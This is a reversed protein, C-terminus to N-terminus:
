RKIIIFDSRRNINHQEETCKVGDKCENLLRSEGYGIASEIRETAIGKSYLYAQTAKARKDSLEMNYADRGRSDTHSEIKIVMEPFIAMVELAKALVVEAEPTIDWKNFEFYIPDLKIKEMGTREDKVILDELKDLEVDLTIYEGDVTGIEQPITKSIYKDKSFTVEVKQDCPIKVEYKGEEDTKVEAIVNFLSDKVTVTADVLFEKSAKDRLVGTIFQDCPLPKRYFAYIDDDGKGNLRNSSFYGNKNDKHFVMAFDDFSTNVVKGLNVAKTFGQEPIFESQYIDLGGFGQHGNSSFYLINESSFFPFVDNGSTNVNAGANRPESLVGDEYIECYYIDAEGFGGPRNSAFFLYKGDPSIAPHGTSYDDSNFFLEEKNILKGDKLEAKYLKFHNKRSNDLVMKNGKKVNSSSFYVTKGDPAFCFTADHYNSAIEKSFVQINSLEGHENRDAMYLSLYQQKNWEYLEKVVGMDERASSFVVKDNFFVAGFDSKDSNAELNFITFRSEEESNLLEKFAEIDKEFKEIEMRDGKSKLYKLHIEDAKDYERIARLSRVYRSLYPQQIDSKAYAKQFYNVAKRHENINYYATGIRLLLEKDEEAKPNKQIYDEYIVLAELFNHENFLKDAKRIKSQSFSLGCAFLLIISLLKKM